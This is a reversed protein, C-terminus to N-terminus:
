TPGSKAIKRCIELMHPGCPHITNEKQMVRYGSTQVESCLRPARRPGAVHVVM